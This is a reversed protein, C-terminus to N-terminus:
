QEDDTEKGCFQEKADRICLRVDAVDSSLTDGSLRGTDKEMQRHEDLIRRREKGAHLSKRLNLFIEPMTVALHVGYM